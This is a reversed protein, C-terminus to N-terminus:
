NNVDIFPSNRLLTAFTQPVEDEVPKEKMAASQKKYAQAFGGMKPIFDDFKKEDEISTPPPASKDQGSDSLYRYRFLAPCNKTHTMLKRYNKMCQLTVRNM